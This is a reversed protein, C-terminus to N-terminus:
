GSYSKDELPAYVQGNEGIIQEYDACFRIEAGEKEPMLISDAGAAVTPATLGAAFTELETAHVESPLLPLSGTIIGFTLMWASMQKWKKLFM